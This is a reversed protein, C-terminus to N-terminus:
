PLYVVKTRESQGNQELQIFYVGAASLGPHIPVRNMGSHLQISERYVEAGRVDFLRLTGPGQNRVHVILNVRPNFPNPYVAEIELARPVHLDSREEVSVAPARTRAVRFGIARTEGESLSTPPQNFRVVCSVHCTNSTIYDGGRLVKNVGTEPGFYNTDDAGYSANWDHVWEMVNGGMHMVGAPTASSPLSGIPVTSNSCGGGGFNCNTNCDPDEGGWPYYRSSIGEHQYHRAVFEWETETPLRYPGELSDDAFAHLDNWDYAPPVGAETSGELFTTLWNCFAVAGHWSVAVVPHNEYGSLVEISDISANYVLKSFAHNMDTVEAGTSSGVRIQSSGTQRYLRDGSGLGWNLFEAFKENTVEHKSIDFGYTLTMTRTESECGPVDGVAFTAGEPEIYVYEILDASVPHAILISGTAILCFLQLNRM